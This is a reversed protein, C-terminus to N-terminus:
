IGEIILHDFAPKDSQTLHLAALYECSIQSCHRDQAAVLTDLILMLLNKPSWEGNYRDWLIYLDPTKEATIHSFKRLFCVVLLETVLM